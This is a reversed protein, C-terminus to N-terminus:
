LYKMCIREESFVGELAEADSKEKILMVGYKVNM